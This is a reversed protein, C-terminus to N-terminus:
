NLIRWLIVGELFGVEWALEREEIVKNREVNICIAFLSSFDKSREDRRERKTWKKM